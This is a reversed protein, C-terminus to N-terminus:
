IRAMSGPQLIRSKEPWAAVASRSSRTRAWPWSNSIRALGTWGWSRSARRRLQVESRRDLPLMGATRRPEARSRSRAAPVVDGASVGDHREAERDHLDAGEMRRVAGPGPDGCGARDAKAGAGAFDNQTTGGPIFQASAKANRYMFQIDERPSLHYTLWAQGGKGQRGVWDRCFARTRRGRGRCTEM